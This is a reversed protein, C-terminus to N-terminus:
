YVKHKIMNCKIAIAKHALTGDLQMWRYINLNEKPAGANKNAIKVNEVFYNFKISKKCKTCHLCCITKEDFDKILHSHTLDFVFHSHM